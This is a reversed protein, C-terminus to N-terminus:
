IGCGQTLHRAQRLSPTGHQVEGAVVTPWCPWACCAARRAARRLLHQSRAPTPLVQTRAVCAAGTVAEELHVHRKECREALSPVESPEQVLTQRSAKSVLPLTGRKLLRAQWTRWLCSCSSSCCQVKEDGDSNTSTEYGRTANCTCCCCAVSYRGPVGPYSFGSRLM